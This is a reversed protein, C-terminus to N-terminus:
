KKDDDDDADEVKSGLLEGTKADFKLETEVGKEDVLDIDYVYADGERELEIETVKGSHAAQARQLIAEQSLIEGSQQLRAVDEVGADDAALVCLSTSLCAGFVAAILTRITTTM